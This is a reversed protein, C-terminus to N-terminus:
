ERRKSSVALEDAHSLHVSMRSSGANVVLIMDAMASSRAPTVVADILRTIMLCYCNTSRICQGSTM